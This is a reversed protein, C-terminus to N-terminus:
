CQFAIGKKEVTTLGGSAFGTGECRIEILGTQIKEKGHHTKVRKSGKKPPANLIANCVFCVIKNQDEELLHPDHVAPPSMFKSVCGKCLVHGCVKALIAKSNNSLAKKCAPCTRQSLGTTCDREETFVVEVLSSLSYGHPSDPCSEPCIPALKPPKPIKHLINKTNSSPTNSPVWFSPLITKAAKEDHIVRRAEDTEARRIRSIEEHDLTFKRKEGERTKKEDASTKGAHDDRMAMTTTAMTSPRDLGMQVKEFEIASRQQAEAEERGLSEEAERAERERTKELRSIEQKQALINKLACEKCFLDGFACAVPTRAPLLCLRCSAFPLFSDRSLRASTSGWAAKALAYEYSTFVARSTNRKSHSM